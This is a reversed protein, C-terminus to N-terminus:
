EETAPASPEEAPKQPPIFYELHEHKERLVMYFVTGVSGAAVVVLIFGVLSGFIEM